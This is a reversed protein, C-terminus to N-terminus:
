NGGVFVELNDTEIVWERNSTENSMEQTPFKKIWCTEGANISRGSNDKMLGTFIGGNSAEDSLAFASLVDNSPSSQQLTLTFTGSRNNTKTRTGSGDSGIALAFADENRDVAIFTGEGFGEMIQGGFILAVQKPDFTKVAM